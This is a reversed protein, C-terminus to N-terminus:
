PARLLRHRDTRREASGGGISRHDQEFSWQTGALRRESLANALPAPDSLGDRARCVIKDEMVTAFPRKGVNVQEAERIRALQSSEVELVHQPTGAHRADLPGRDQFVRDLRGPGADPDRGLAIRRVAPERAIQCAGAPLACAGGKGRKRRRRRKRGGVRMRMRM